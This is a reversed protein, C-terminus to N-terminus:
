DPTDLPLHGLEDRGSVGLKRYVTHLHNDVTRPSLFRKDAIEPSTLGTAADLAIEFERATVAEPRNLLAPTMSDQCQTEFFRSLWVARAEASSGAEAIIGVQAWAEAALLHAGMAGFRSAVAALEKRDRRHLASAHTVMNHLLASGPMPPLKQMTQLIREPEGLRVVDHLCLTAWAPHQGALANQGGSMLIEVAQDVEGRAAAAWGRGRDIWVTLRPAPAPLELDEVSEGAAEEGMQGLELALLGRTQPELGFPDGREHLRMAESASGLADRHLGGVDQLFCLAGLWTSRMVTGGPEREMASTAMSLGQSLQGAHLKSIVQMIRIQDWALPLESKAELGVAAAEEAISEMEDEDGTMALAITATAYASARPVPGLSHDALVSSAAEIADSFDGLIASVMGRENNLRARLAGDDVQHLSSALLERADHVRGLGFALNQARASDIEVRLRINDTETESMIEEAEEFRQQYSLARGLILTAAPNESGIPRILREALGPDHRILAETSGRIALEASVMEGLEFQWSAARVADVEDGTRMAGEVLRRLAARARTRGINARLVEGYLPHSTVLAKQGAADGLAVLGRQELIALADGLIEGALSLPLPTGLSVIDMMPRLTEPLAHLRSDVLDALRVSSTLPGDQIWIGDDSPVIEDNLAGEVVEHLVLANGSSLRWLEEHLHDDIPGIASEVIRRTEAYDLLGLDRREIVGNTWLDVLDSHMPEGSRATMCVTAANSSVVSVVLALSLEDLHHADDIALLVGQDSRRRKLSHLAHELMALRDQTPSGPLLEVFPAFPISRTSVTAVASIVSMGHDQARVNIEHLLRSKGVGAAGVIALGTGATVLDVAQNLDSDRGTLPWEM